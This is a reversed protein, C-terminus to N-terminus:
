FDSSYVDLLQVSFWGAPLGPTRDPDRAFHASLGHEVSGPRKAAPYVKSHLRYGVIYLTGVLRVVLYQALVDTYSSPDAPSNPEIEIQKSAMCWNAHDRSQCMPFVYTRDPLITMHQWPEPSRQHSIVHRLHVLVIPFECLDHLQRTM